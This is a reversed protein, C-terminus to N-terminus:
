SKSWTTIQFTDPTVRSYFAHMGTVRNAIVRAIARTESHTYNFKM